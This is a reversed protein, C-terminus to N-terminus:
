GLTDAPMWQTVGCAGARHRPIRLGGASRSWVVPAAGPVGPSSSRGTVSGAQVRRTSTVTRGTQEDM